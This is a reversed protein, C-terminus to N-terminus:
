HADAGGAKATVAMVRGLHTLANAAVFLDLAGQEPSIDSTSAPSILFPIPKELKKQKM